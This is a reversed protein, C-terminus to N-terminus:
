GHAGGRGLNGGFGPQPLIKLFPSLHTASAQSQLAIILFYSGGWLTSSLQIAERVQQSNNPNVLYALKIPRSKIEVTALM